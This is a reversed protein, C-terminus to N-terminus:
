VIVEGIIPTAKNLREPQRHISNKGKKQNLERIQWYLKERRERVEDKIFRSTHNEKGYTSFFNNLVIVQKGKIKLYPHIKKIFPIVNSNKIEWEYSDADGNQKIRKSTHGGFSNKLWEIFDKDIMCVKIIPVYCYGGVYSNKKEKKIGLYGEGDIIGALYAATLKSMIPMYNAM